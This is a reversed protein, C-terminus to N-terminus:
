RASRAAAASIAVLAVVVAVSWLVLQEWPVVTVLPPQPAAVSGAAAVAAVALRTLLAALVFGALVGCVAAFTSRLMLERRMARPGLGQEVLDREAARDRGLVAVMLGVIALVGYVVGGAVLTGVVARAVPASRLRRTIASRFTASLGASAAEARVAGPDRAQLWLEDARGQGPLQADLAGALTAEDAIVFGASGPSVTPFRRATGVVRALVPLGDVTLALRGSRGTAAATAPDTLVPVPRTDTPQPPRIIGPEGTDAFRVRVGDGDRRASSAAGVAAFSGVAIPHGGATLRVTVTGSAQTSAAPNEANQHGNTAELGTPEDLEIAELEFPGGRPLRAGLPLRTLSGDAFRLDVAASVAISGGITASLRKTGAPLLPGPTRVPDDPRVRRALTALPASGDSARWGHISTLAAAPVGVASVTVNAGGDAFSAYTRRVPWAAGGAVSRWRALSAVQLPTTFNSGPAVIADLPVTNAAQDASGRLLTARYALAFGGLGVAAALFAIALAPPGTTRALSVVSLRALVPGHRLSREAYPLLAVVVRFVVLGAALCCLPALLAAVANSTGSGLAVAAVLAVVAAVAAIDLLRTSRIAILGTLLATACLWGGVLAAGGAPTLLSHTLVGGSPEGAARALLATIGVAAAWGVVIAVASLLASEAVVLTALQATRAGAARLRALEEELDRRLGGVALAIFLTLAAVAGGALLLLRHPATAGAARAAALADFPGDFTFRPSAATLSAQAGALRRQEAAPTLANLNTTPLLAVWQRTRYISQLAPLTALGGIDGTVLLPAQPGGGGGPVFGLAAASALRTRGAVVVDVGPATLGRPVAGASALLVACRSATCPGLGGTRPAIAALRVVTGGLRVPNLLVSETVAGLGLRALATRSRREAAPTVPGHWTIRVARQLPTLGRLVARSAQVGAITGEAAVTAAFAAALGIGLAPLLWRGPQRRARAGVLTLVAPM